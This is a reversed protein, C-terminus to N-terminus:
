MKMKSKVGPKLPNTLSLRSASCSVNSQQSKTRSISSYKRYKSRLIPTLLMSLLSGVNIIFYFISFFRTLQEVQSEDFQDGGFAAVCPKIGGTGIGILALGIM